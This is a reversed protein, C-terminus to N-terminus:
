KKTLILIWCCCCCCCGGESRGGDAKRVRMRASCLRPHPKLRRLDSGRELFPCPTNGRGLSRLALMARAGWGIPLWFAWPFFFAEVLRCLLSFRWFLWPLYDLPARSFPQQDTVGGTNQGAPREKDHDDTKTGPRRRPAQYSASRTPKLGVTTTQTPARPSTTPADSKGALFGPSWLPLDALRVVRGPVGRFETGVASSDEEAPPSFLSGTPDM